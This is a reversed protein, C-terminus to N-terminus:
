NILTLQESPPALGVFSGRKWNMSLSVEEQYPDTDKTQLGLTLGKSM